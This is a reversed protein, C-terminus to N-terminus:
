ATVDKLYSSASLPRVRGTEATLTNWARCCTDVIAEYNTLLRHSLYRERPTEIQKVVKRAKARLNPVRLSIAEGM